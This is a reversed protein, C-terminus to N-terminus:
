RRMCRRDERIDFRGDVHSLVVCKRKDTWPHKVVLKGLQGYSGGLGGRTDAFSLRYIRDSGDGHGALGSVSRLTSNELDVAVGGKIYQWDEVADCGTGTISRYRIGKDSNGACLTKPTGGSAIADIRSAGGQLTLQIVASSVRFNGIVRMFTPLAIAALIGLIGVVCLLETLTFGKQNRM